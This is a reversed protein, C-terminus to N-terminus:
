NTQWTFTVGNSMLGEIIEDLQKEYEEYESYEKDLEENKKRVAEDDELMNKYIYPITTTIRRILEELKEIKEDINPIEIELTDMDLREMIENATVELEQLEDLANAEYAVTIRYWIDKLEENENTLPNIDPHLKKALRRYIKKVLMAESATLIGLSEAMENEKVMNELQEYYVSMEVELFENIVDMNILKGQNIFQQCYSITKKKKICSIKKEFIKLIKEGFVRKYEMDWKYAEKKVRDRQFLLEEYQAYAANKVRIIENM